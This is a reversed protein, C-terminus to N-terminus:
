SSRAGCRARASRARSRGRPPGFPHRPGAPPPSPPRCVSDLRIKRPAQSRDASARTIWVNVLFPSSVLVRSVGHRVSDTSPRIPGRGRRACGSGRAQGDARCPGRADVVYPPASALTILLFMASSFAVASAVPPETSFRLSMLLFSISRAVTVASTSLSGTISVLVGFVLFLVFDQARLMYVCGIVRRAPLCGMLPTGSRLPLRTTTPEGPEPVSTFVLAM